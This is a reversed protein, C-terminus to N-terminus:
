PSFSAVACVQPERFDSTFGGLGYYTEGALPMFNPPNRFSYSRKGNTNSGQGKIKICALADGTAQQDATGTCYRWGRGDCDADHVFGCKADAECKTKAEALTGTWGGHNCVTGMLGNAKRPGSVFGVAGLRVTSARNLLFRAQNGGKGTAGTIEFITFMDFPSASDRRKYVNVGPTSKCAATTCREYSSHKDATFATAHM